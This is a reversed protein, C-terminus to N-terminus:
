IQLWETSHFLFGLPQRRLNKVGYVIRAYHFQMTGPEVGLDKAARETIPRLSLEEEGRELIVGYSQAIIVVRHSCATDIKLDPFVDVPFAWTESICPTGDISLVQHVQRCQASDSVHMSRKLSADCRCDEEFREVLDGAVREGAANYLCSFRVPLQIESQDVVFSGRGRRREILQKSTLLGLAQRMTGISVGFERALEAEGPILMGPKWEGQEIRQVLEAYVLEPLSRVEFINKKM